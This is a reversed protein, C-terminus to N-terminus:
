EDDKSKTKITIKKGLKALLYIANWQEKGLEEQYFVFNDANQYPTGNKIWNKLHKVDVLFNVLQEMKEGKENKYFYIEVWLCNGKLIKNKFKRVEGTLPDTQKLTYYGYPNKYYYRVM